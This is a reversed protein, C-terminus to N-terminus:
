YLEEQSNYMKVKDGDYGVQIKKDPTRGSILDGLVKNQRESDKSYSM